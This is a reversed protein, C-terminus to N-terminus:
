VGCIRSVEGPRKIRLLVREEKDEFDTSEVPELFSLVFEATNASGTVRILDEKARAQTTRQDEQEVEQSLQAVEAEFEQIARTNWSSNGSQECGNQQCSNEQYGHSPPPPTTTIDYDKYAGYRIGPLIEIIEVVDMDEEITHQDMRILAETRQRLHHVLHNALTILSPLEKGCFPCMDVQGEEEDEEEVNTEVERVPGFDALEDATLTQEDLAYGLEQIDKVAHTKLHRRYGSRTMNRSNCNPRPCPLATIRGAEGDHYDRSHSKLGGADKCIHKCLDCQHTAM